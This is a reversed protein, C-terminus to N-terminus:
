PKVRPQPPFLDALRRVALETKADEIEGARCADLADELSVQALKAARELTSGDETAHGRKDPDIEVHFFFHREGIVGPCPFTGHGLPLVASTPVDYGTEELLERAASVKLGEASTEDPEVLGAPVEWLEGLSDREPLPRVEMPRVFPPPRLASRLLVMRTGDAAAFHPVIVVADLAARGVCDYAFPASVTGDAFTAVMRLRRLWLFGRDSPEPDSAIRLRHGPLPPLAM